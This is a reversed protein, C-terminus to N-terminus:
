LLGNKFRYGRTKRTIYSMKKKIKLYKACVKLRKRNAWNNRTGHTGFKEIVPKQNNKKHTNYNTTPVEDEAPTINKATKCTNQM